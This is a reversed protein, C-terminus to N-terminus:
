GGRVNLSRILPHDSAHRRVDAGLSALLSTISFHNRHLGECINELGKLATVIQEQTLYGREIAARFEDIDIVKYHGTKYVLVDLYLDTIYVGGDREAVSVVDIYWDFPRDNRRYYLSARFGQRPFLFSVVRFHSPHDPTMQDMVLHAAGTHINVSSIRGHADQFTDTEPYMVYTYPQKLM